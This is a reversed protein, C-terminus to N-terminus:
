MGVWHLYEGFGYPRANVWINEWRGKPVDYVEHAITVCDVGKGMGNFREWGKRHTVASHAFKYCHEIDKFYIIQLGVPKTIDDTSTYGTTGLFGYEAANKELEIFMKRGHALLTAYPPYLIGLPSSSSTLASLFPFLRPRPFPRVPQM